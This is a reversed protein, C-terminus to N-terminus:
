RITLYFLYSNWCVVMFIVFTVAFLFHVSMRKWLLAMTFLVAAKWIWLGYPFKLAIASIWVAERFIPWRLLNETLLNDAICLGCLFLFLVIKRINEKQTAVM